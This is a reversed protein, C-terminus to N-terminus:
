KQIKVSVSIFPKRELDQTVQNVLFAGYKGDPTVFYILNGPALGDAPTSYDTSTVNLNRSTAREEITSASTLNFLFENTGNRIPTSFRTERKNWDSVDYIPFPNPSADLAYYNYTIFERGQNDTVVKRWIGFDINGANERGSSYSYAEGTTLSFFSPMIMVTSDPAYIRRNGYVMYSAPVEVTVKTYGDGIYHGVRNKAFIRYSTKGDRQVKYKLTNSYSRRHEDSLFTETREPTNSNRGDAREEVVSYMDEDASSITYDIYISDGDNVLKYDTVSFPHDGHFAVKVGDFMTFVNESEVKCGTLCTLLVGIYVFKNINIKKM